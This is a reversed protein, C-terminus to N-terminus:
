KKKGYFKLFSHSNPKHKCELAFQTLGPIFYFPLILGWVAGLAFRIWGWTSWLSLLNGSTDVVIPFTVLFFTRTRPFSLNHLGHVGPYMLTGLLFGSYIGLCRSCVALPYGSFTFCRSPIQHCINSFASYIFIHIPSQYARLYPALFIATLWLLIGGITLSYIFLFIHKDKVDM